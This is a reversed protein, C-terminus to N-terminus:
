SNLSFFKSRCSHLDEGKLPLRMSFPLLLASLLTAEEVQRKSYTCMGRPFMWIAQEGSLAQGMVYFAKDYIKFTHCALVSALMVVIRVPSSFIDNKSSM